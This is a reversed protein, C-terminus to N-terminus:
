RASTAASGAPVPAPQPVAKPKPESNTKPKADGGSPETPSAPPQAANAPAAPPTSSVAAVAVPEKSVPATVFFESGHFPVERVKAYLGPRYKNIREQALLTWENYVKLEYSKALAKELAEISKEELPFARNELEGRYMDLQEQDLGKPNPSDLFNQAFDAYALGIRTLAAIGHDGSGTALVETYAKEVEQIKKVKAALDARLTAVRQFRIDTYQKWLPELALFRAHAYGDRVRDNKKDEASLKGYGVILERQLKEVEASNKLERYARLQRYKADYVRAGSVRNDKGYTGVFGEFAKAADAWKKDKEHILGINFAIEPVDKKEKFRTLYHQYAAIAKDSKGLGEWWLGANFIADAVWKEAEKVLDEREKPDVKRPEVKAGKKKPAAAVKKGDRKAANKMNAIGIAKDGAAEDYAEVFAEYMEASKPFNAVKEYFSALTYRVKLEFPTGPYEKLTREGVEIGRDLQNADQFIVMAYTLARDANDSKPFEAVFKIFEEAALAPNKDKKYVVEDIWKYQSGEVVGTVRKAFETNPKTLKKNALFQRSLKNLEFWEGKEELVSMSLDAADQSRKEEPWKLIIEGFRKAADLFHNRDYYVVAAQYRVDIEDQNNPFLTNYNDCAAVLKEEFGTLKQEELEKASRKTIKAQKEVNGKKKQEDVKQGEKLDSKALQGREIKVLKEYALIANYAAAQRYKEQSVEKATDRNPIKFTVVTDYEKAAPEWEELAWLIEAYYFRLNFAFDSVFNEDQSSAFADVYQKYIDRALRYTEVQKTKQAEQHYDTVVTRMAEEAVNFGNRLVEQKSANANWWASGPRYLEALRKVELKVQDRQRRGEYSRIIAQQYDPAAEAMPNQEILYRFSKIANEFHGADVLQYSMKAILTTQRKKGAHQKFYAIGDDSRNLQVFMVVMDNLAENKLDTMGKGQKEAYAVVEQLKKLAKEHEGANFDCWALKYLAYSKINPVSSAFAKEYMTKAKSLENAVDFYHNGLQVYTDAVFRSNPYNKILDEYRKIAEARKGIEYQNYGLSFLVEDKREYAPYERLITEYIRMTEARYLESERHDVKPDGVKEGRNRAEEVKKEDEQFKLMEKRNLYKSKDWYLEALQYYLDAKQADGDEFRKILNKLSAISEDRKKDALAEKEADELKPATKFSAPGKRTPPKDAAAKKKPAQSAPDTAAKPPAAESAKAGKKAGKKQGWAETTVLTTGVLLTALLPAAAFLRLFSRM